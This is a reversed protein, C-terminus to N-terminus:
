ITTGAFNMKLGAGLGPRVKEAMTPQVSARIEDGSGDFESGAVPVVFPGPREQCDDAAALPHQLGCRM